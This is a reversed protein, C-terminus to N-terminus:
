AASSCGIKAEIFIIKPVSNENWATASSCVVLKMTIVKIFIVSSATCSATPETSKSRVISISSCSTTGAKSERRIGNNWFSVNTWSIFVIFINNRFWVRDLVTRRESYRIRDKNWADPITIAKSADSSEVKIILTWFWNSKTWESEQPSCFYLM